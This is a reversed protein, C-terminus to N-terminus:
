RPRIAFRTFRCLLPQVPVSLRKDNIIIDPYLPTISLGGPHPSITVPILFESAFLSPVVLEQGPALTLQQQRPTVILEQGKEEVSFTLDSQLKESFLSSLPYITAKAKGPDTVYSGYIAEQHDTRTYFSQLTNPTSTSLTSVFPPHATTPYVLLRGFAKKNQLSPSSDLFHVMSDYNIPQSSLTNIVYQDVFIYSLDYKQIVGELLNQDQSNIAQQLENYYQENRLSWPDFARELMPQPIGYWLFGSGRHGWTRYHWNWFTHAPLVAVRQNPDITQFYEMLEFYDQPNELPSSPLHFQGSFCTIRTLSDVRWYRSCWSYHIKLIRCFDM